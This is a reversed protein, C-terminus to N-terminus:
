PIGHINFTKKTGVASPDDYGAIAGLVRPDKGIELAAAEAKESNSSDDAEVLKVKHGHVGGRENVEDVALRIANRMGLGAEADPGTLPLVVAIKVRSGGIRGALWAGALGTLLLAVVGVAIYWKRRTMSM